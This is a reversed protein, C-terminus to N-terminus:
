GKRRHGFGGDETATKTNHHPECLAQHNDPDWFLKQDGRHPKIHDVVTAAEVRDEAECKRCLPHANLFAARYKQWRRDYGRASASGRDREKQRQDEKATEVHRECHRGETLQGCGPHNCPKKPAFPM